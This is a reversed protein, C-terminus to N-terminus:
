FRCDYPLREYITKCMLEYLEAASTDGHKRCRMATAKNAAYAGLNKAIITYGKRRDGVLEECDQRKGVNQYKNWFEMLQSESMKDLRPIGM